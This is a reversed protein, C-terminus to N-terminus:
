PGSGDSVTAVAMWFGDVGVFSVSLLRGWPLCIGFVVAMDMVEMDRFYIRM